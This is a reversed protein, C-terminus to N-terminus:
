GNLDRRHLVVIAGALLLATWAAPVALSWWLASGWYADVRRAMQEFVTWALPTYSTFVYRSLDYEQGVLHKGAEILVVLGVVTGVAQGVNRAVSSVFLGFAAVAALALWTLGMAGALAALVQGRTYLTGYEDAVDAFTDGRALGLVGATALAVTTILMVYLLATIAKAVVLEWRKVPASLVMRLTGAGTEEALLTGAFVAVFMMAVDPLSVQMSMALYGWSTVDGMMAYRRFITVMGCIVIVAALGLWGLKRRSAKAIENRVLPRIMSPM